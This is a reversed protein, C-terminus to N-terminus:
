LYGYYQISQGKKVHSKLCDNEADYYSEDPQAIKIWTRNGSPYSASYGIPYQKNNDDTYLVKNSPPYYPSLVVESIEDCGEFINVNKPTVSSSSTEKYQSDYDNFKLNTYLYWENKFYNLMRNARSRAKKSRYLRQFIGPGGIMSTVNSLDISELSECGDFMYRHSWEGGTCEDVVLHDLNRIARLSKCDKFFNGM